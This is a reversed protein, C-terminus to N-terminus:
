GGWGLPMPMSLAFKFIAICFVTLGVYIALVEWPHKLLRRLCSIGILAAMAVIFGARDILLGFAVVSGVILLFPELPENTIQEHSTNKIATFLSCGGLFVLFVGALAPMYGPGMRAAVGVEYQQASFFLLAGVVIFVLGAYLDKNRSLM